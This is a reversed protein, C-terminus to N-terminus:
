AYDIWNFTGVLAHSASHVVQLLIVAIKRAPATASGILQMATNRLVYIFTIFASPDSRRLWSRPSSTADSQYQLMPAAWILDFSALALAAAAPPFPLRLTRSCWHDPNYAMITARHNGDM